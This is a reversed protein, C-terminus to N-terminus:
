WCSQQIAAVVNKEANRVWDKGRVIATPGLVGWGYRAHFAGSTACVHFEEDPASEKALLYGGLRPQSQSRSSGFTTHERIAVYCLKM